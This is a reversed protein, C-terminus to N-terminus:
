CLKELVSQKWRPFGNAFQNNVSPHLIVEFVVERPLRRYAQRGIEAILNIEREILKFQHDVETAPWSWLYTAHTDILEWIFHNMDEGRHFFLFGTAPTRTMAIPLQKDHLEGSLYALQPANRALNLDLLEKLPDIPLAKPNAADKEATAPILDLNEGDLATLPQQVSSMLDKLRRIRLTRILDDNLKQLHPTSANELVNQGDALFVLKGEVEIYTRRLQKAFYPLIWQYAKLSCSHPIRFIAPFGFPAVEVVGSIFGDMFVLDTIAVKEKVFREKSPEEALETNKDTLEKTPESVVSPEEDAASNALKELDAARYYTLRAKVEDLDLSLFELTRIPKKPQQAAFADSPDTWYDIVRCSLKEVTNQYNEMYLLWYIPERESFRLNETPFNTATWDLKDTLNYFVGQNSIRVILQRKM